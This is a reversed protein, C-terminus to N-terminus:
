VVKPNASEKSSVVEDVEQRGFYGVVHRWVLYKVVNGGIVM